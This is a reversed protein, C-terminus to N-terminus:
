IHILSLYLLYFVFIGEGFIRRIDPLNNDIRDKYIEPIHTGLYLPSVGSLINILNVTLGYSAVTELPLFMSIFLLNGKQVFYGGLSSLGNKKANVWLIPLLKEKTAQTNRLIKRLGNRYFFHIAVLRNIIISLFNATAVAILGYGAILGLAALVLYTSRTIIILQNNEKVLGRGM